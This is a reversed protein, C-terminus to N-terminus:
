KNIALESNLVNRIEDIGGVLPKRNDAVKKCNYYKAWKNGKQSIGRLHCYNTWNPAVTTGCEVIARTKKDYIAWIITEPDFHGEANPNWKTDMFSYFHLNDAPAVDLKVGTCKEFNTITLETFGIVNSMTRM